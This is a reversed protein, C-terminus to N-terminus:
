RGYQWLPVAGAPRAPTNRYFTTNKLRMRHEAVATVLETSILLAGCFDGRIAGADPHM